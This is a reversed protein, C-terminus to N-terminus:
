HAGHENGGSTTRMAAIEARWCTGCQEVTPRKGYAIHYSEGHCWENDIYLTTCSQGCKPCTWKAVEYATGNGTERHLLEDPDLIGRRREIM